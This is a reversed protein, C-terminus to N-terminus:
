YKTLGIAKIFKDPEKEIDFEFDLIRVNDRDERKLLGMKEFELLSSARLSKPVLYQRGLKSFIDKRKVLQNGHVKKLSNHFALYLIKTDLKM